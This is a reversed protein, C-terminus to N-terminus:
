EYMFIQPFQNSLVAVIVITLLVFLIRLILVAICYSDCASHSSVPATPYSPAFHSPKQPPMLKTPHPLIPRPPAKTASKTGHNPIDWDPSWNPYGLICVAILRDREPNECLNQICKEGNCESCPRGKKYPKVPYNGAPGYNCVFHAGNSLSEYGVVRRCFQAACGVKYSTAWVVQTYHGCVKACVRSEFNYDNVENYWERLAREVSFLSFSGTWINEGIPSFSPHVKGPTELYINHDFICKKAWAKATKALAPDWTMHYMNSASPNVKSRFSNHKNVCDQIFHQDEIDPLSIPDYTSCGVSLEWAIWLGNFLIFKM